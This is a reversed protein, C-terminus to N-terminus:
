GKYEECQDLKEVLIEDLKKYREQLRLKEGSDEALPIAKKIHAMSTQIVRIEENLLNM